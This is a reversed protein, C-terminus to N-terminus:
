DGLDRLNNRIVAKGKFHKRSRLVIKFAENHHVELM